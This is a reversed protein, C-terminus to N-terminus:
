GESAEGRDPGNEPQQKMAALREQSETYVEHVRTLFSRAADRKLFRRFYKKQLYGNEVHYAVLQVAASSNVASWNEEDLIQHFYTYLLDAASREPLRFYIDPKSQLYREVDFKLHMRLQARQWGHRNPEPLGEFSSIGDVACFLRVIDHYLVHRIKSTERRMEVWKVFLQVALALVAGVAVSILPALWSPSSAKTLAKAIDGLQRSYDPQIQM